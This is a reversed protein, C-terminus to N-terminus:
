FFQALPGDRDHYVARQILMPHRGAWFVLQRMLRDDRSFQRMIEDPTLLDYLVVADQRGSLGKDRQDQSVEGQRATEVPTKGLRKSIYETTTLDNNAFFQMVGANGAFTEWRDRYLAKGQNWDQLVTWLKVGYSAILGAATELQKMYGLVPFEDLCVLVPAEPKTKEREMADLLQNIFIRLWRRSLEVRTAPFCLYISAGEPASKLEKLDFSSSRMSQRFARYDLFKTHRNLSSLVGPRESEGKSYFDIAAGVIAEGIDETTAVQCLREGNQLMSAHLAAGASSSGTQADPAPDMARKILKRVEILNRRGEIQPDTAVHAIVGELFNKASEDWHPDKQDSPQVVMAEAILAADEILTPSDLALVDMPNFQAKWPAMDKGCTGFPDVVHIRQGMAARRAATITALEGKPDTALISGSYFLMNSVIGVSKGARSTAVTMIHRDDEIGVLKNGLTGILVKKGPRTPEYHLADSSAIDELPMWRSQPIKQQRLFRTSVGRPVDSMFNTFFKEM